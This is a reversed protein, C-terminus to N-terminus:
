RMPAPPSPSRRRAEEGRLARDQRSRQRRPDGIQVAQRRYAGVTPIWFEDVPDALLLVEVGRAAFGELQPSSAAAEVSEGTIYYIAEQGPKMRGVYDALSVLEEGPTSRFRALKLLTERQESIRM